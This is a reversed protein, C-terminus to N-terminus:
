GSEIVDLMEQIRQVRPADKLKLYLKEAKKLYSVALENDGFSNYYLQGLLFHADPFDPKVRVAELFAERAAEFQGCDMCVLGLSFNLQLSDPALAVARELCELAKEPEEIVRYAMGLYYFINHNNSEIKRAQELLTIAKAYEGQRQYAAALAIYAHIFDSKIRIAQKFAGVASDIKELGLDELSGFAIGMNYYADLYMPKFAIAMKYADVARQYLGLTQLRLGEKLWNEAAQEPEAVEEKPCVLQRTLAARLLDNRGVYLEEAKDLNKKKRENNRLKKIHLSGLEYYADAFDPLLRVANKFASRSLANLGYELFAHGLMYYAQAQCRAKEGEEKEGQTDPDVFRGLNDSSFTLWHDAVDFDQSRTISDKMVSFAKSDKGMAWYALALDYYIQAADPNIKLAKRYYDVEMKHKGMSGCVYGLMHYLPWANPEREMLDSFVGLAELYHGQIGHMVGELFYERDEWDFPFLELLVEGQRRAVNDSLYYRDVKEAMEPFKQRLEEGLTSLAEDGSSFVIPNKRTKTRKM